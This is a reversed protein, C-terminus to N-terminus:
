RKATKLSMFSARRRSPWCRCRATRKKMCSCRLRRRCSPSRRRAAACSSPPREATSCTKVDFAYSRDTRLKAIGLNLVGDPVAIPTKYTREDSTTPETVDPDTTKTGCAAFSVLMLVALLLALARQLRKM